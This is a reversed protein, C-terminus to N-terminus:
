FGFQVSPAVPRRASPAAGAGAGDGRRETAGDAGGLEPRPFREVAAAWHEPAVFLDDRAPVEEGMRRAVELHHAAEEWAREVEALGASPQDRLLLTDPPLLDLLTRREGAGGERAVDTTIPLVSAGDLAALSRQTTL